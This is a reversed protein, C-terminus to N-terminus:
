TRPKLAALTWATRVQEVFAGRFRVLDTRAIRASAGANRDRQLARAAVVKLLTRAVAPRNLRQQHRAYELLGFMFEPQLELLPGRHLFGAQFAADGEALDGNASFAAALHFRCNASPAPTLLSTQRSRPCLERLLGITEAYRKMRYLMMARDINLEDVKEKLSYRSYGPADDDAAMRGAREFVQEAEIFRAQEILSTALVHLAAVLSYRMEWVVERRGARALDRQMAAAASRALTNAEAYEGQEVLSRALLGDSRASLAELAPDGGLPRALLARNAQRLFPEAAGHRGRAILRAGFEVRLWTLMANGAGFREGAVAALEGMLRETAPWREPERENILLFAFEVVRDNAESCEPPVPAVGYCFPMREVLVRFDSRYQADTRFGSAPDVLIRGPQQATAPLTVLMGIAPLLSGIGM